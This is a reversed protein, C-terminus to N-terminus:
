RDGERPRCPGVPASSRRAKLRHGVEVIADVAPLVKARARHARVGRDAAVDAHRPAGRHRGRAAAAPAPLPGQGLRRRRRPAARQVAPPGRPPVVPHEPDVSRRPLGPAPEAPMGGAPGRRSSPRFKVSAEMSTSPVLSATTGPLWIDVPLQQRQSDQNGITVPM